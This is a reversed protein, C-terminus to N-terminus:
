IKLAELQKGENYDKLIEDHADMKYGKLIGSLSSQEIKKKSSSIAQIDLKGEDYYRKLLLNYMIRKPEEKVFRKKLRQIDEDSLKEEKIQEIKNEIVEQKTEEDKIEEGVEAEAKEKILIAEVGQQILDAKKKGTKWVDGVGYEKLTTRLGHYPTAELIETLEVERPKIEFTSM